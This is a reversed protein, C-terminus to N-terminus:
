LPTNGNIRAAPQSGGFGQCSQCRPRNTAIYAKNSMNRIPARVKSSEDNERGKRSNDYSFNAAGSRVYALVLM